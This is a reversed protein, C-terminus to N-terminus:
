RAGDGRFPLRDDYPHLESREFVPDRRGTGSTALSVLTFQTLMTAAVWWVAKRVSRDGGMAVALMIGLLPAATVVGTYAIAFQAPEFGANDMVQASIATILFGPVIMLCAGLYAAALATGKRRACYRRVLLYAPVAMVLLNGLTPLIRAAIALQVLILAPLWWIPAPAPPPAPINGGRPILVGACVVIALLYAAIPAVVLLRIDFEVAETGIDILILASSGLVVLHWGQAIGGLPVASAAARRLTLLATVIMAIATLETVGWLIFIIDDGGSLLGLGKAFSFYVALLAAAALGAAAWGRWRRRQADRRLTDVIATPAELDLEDLNNRNAFSLFVADAFRSAPDAVAASAVAEGLGAPTVVMGEGGGDGSGLWRAFLGRAEEAREKSLERALARRLWDPMRGLRFWPLTAIAVLGAPSALPSGDPGKLAAAFFRTLDGRLEPFVALVCVLEFGGPPLELAIADIMMEIEIGPPADDGHLLPSHRPLRALPGPAVPVVGSGGALAGGQSRLHDGLAAIGDPTAPLVILGGESLRRERWSWRSRPVPTLLVVMRWTEFGLDFRLQGKGPLLLSEGDGILILVDERFRAAEEALSTQRGAEDRLWRPDAGCYFLTHDIAEERLRAALQQAIDVLHDRSSLAEIVIPYAPLVPRVGLVLRPQGCAAITARISAKPDIHRSALRRHVGSARFPM